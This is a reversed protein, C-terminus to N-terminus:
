DGPNHQQDSEEATDAITSNRSQVVSSPKSNLFDMSIVNRLKKGTRNFIPMGQIKELGFYIYVITSVVFLLLFAVTAQRVYM